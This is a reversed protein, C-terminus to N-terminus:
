GGGTAKRMAAGRIQKEAEALSPPKHLHLGRAPPALKLVVAAGYIREGVGNQALSHQYILASRRITFM